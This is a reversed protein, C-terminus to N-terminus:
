KYLQYFDLYEPSMQGGSVGAAIREFVIPSIPPPRFLITKAAILQRLRQLSIKRAKSYLIYSRRRIFSHDGVELICAPDYPVNPYITTANVLLISDHKAPDTLVVFFHFQEESM